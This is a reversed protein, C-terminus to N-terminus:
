RIVRRLNGVMIRESQLAEIALVDEARERAVVVGRGGPASVRMQM